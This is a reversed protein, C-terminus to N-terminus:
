TREAERRPLVDDMLHMREDDDMVGWRAIEDTTRHCGMCIGEGDLACVGICPTLVARLQFNM